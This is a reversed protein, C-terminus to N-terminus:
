PRSHAILHALLTLCGLLYLWAKLFGIKADAGLRSSLPCHAFDCLAPAAVALHRLLFPSAISNSCLTHPCTERGSIHTLAKGGYIFDSVEMM